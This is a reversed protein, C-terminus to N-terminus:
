FDGIEPVFELAKFRMPANATFRVEYARRRARGMRTIHQRIQSMDISRYGSYTNYDDNTYRILARANAIDAVLAVDPFTKYNKTGGDWIPTKVRVDVPAVDDTYTNMDLKYVMGSTYHQVYYVGANGAGGSAYFFSETSATMHMSTSTNAAPITNVQYTFTNLDVVVVNQYGNYNDDSAGTILVPDGDQRGHNTCVATVTGYADCTLSTISLPSSNTRATWQYWEKHGFDYVLTMNNNALTLVYFNHGEAGTAYAYVNSLDASQLIRDIFPTSIKRPSLNDIQYVSRGADKTQGVWVVTSQMEVVSDGTACGVNTTLTSNTSLPSAPAPNNNDYFYQLSWQGLAVIYNAIKSIAAGGNPEAQMAVMNLATWSTADNIASGFIRGATDMVYFSGDLYAIGPVTTQPYNVNTIKTLTSTSPNYVYGDRSSKLFLLPQTISEATQNFTYRLSPLTVSPLPVRGGTALTALGSGWVDNYYTAPVQSNLGGIIWISNYFTGSTQRPQWVLPLSVQTWTTGNTTKWVEPPSNNSGFNEDCIFYLVQNVSDYVSFGRKDGATGTALLYALFGAQISTGDQSVTVTPAETYGSGQNTVNVLVITSTDSDASDLFATAAAGTGGGGSFSLTPAVSYEQGDSQWSLNSAILGAAQGFPNATVRTWNSGDPSTWLDGAANVLDYSLDGGCVVLKGGVTGFAFRARAAWPATPQGAPKQWNAGDGSSYLDNYANLNSSGYGGAIWMKNQFICLGFNSRPGFGHTTLQTWTVGDPTSWVDGYFTTGNRGGILYLVNNFVILGFDSRPGWPTTPARLFWNIGDFSEYTDGVTNGSSSIGGMVWLANNFAVVGHGYRPSFGASNTLKSFTAPTGGISGITSVYDGSISYIINLFNTMGQGQGPQGQFYQAVGPRKVAALGDEQKEIFCNVMKADKMAVSDRNEFRTVLPLRAVENPM